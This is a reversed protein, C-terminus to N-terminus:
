YRDLQVRGQWRPAEICGRLLLRFAELIYQKQYGKRKRGRLPFTQAFLRCAVVQKPTLRRPSIFLIAYQHHRCLSKQPISTYIYFDNSQYYFSIICFFTGLNEESGTEAIKIRKSM